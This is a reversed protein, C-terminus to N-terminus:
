SPVSEVMGYQHVPEIKDSLSILAPHSGPKGEPIPLGLQAYYTHWYDFFQGTQPNKFCLPTEPFFPHGQNAVRFSEVILQSCYYATTTPLFAANYPLGVLTKAHAIAGSVVARFPERVRFVVVSPQGQPDLAAALFDPLAVHRVAPAIAEIVSNADICLAVHNFRWGNYGVCTQAIVADIPDATFQQFLLDGAQPVFPTTM